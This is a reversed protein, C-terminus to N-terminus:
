LPCFLTNYHELQDKTEEYEGSDYADQFLSIVQNESISFQISPHAANLLAATAQRALQRLQPSITPPGGGPQLAELLSVENTFVNREFVDNFLDDISYANPWDEEHNRWFGASCGERIGM